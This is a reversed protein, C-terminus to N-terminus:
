EYRLAQVPVLRSAKAAPYLGFILGVAASFGLSLAAISASIQMSVGMLSGILSVGVGSIVLGILGGVLSIALAEIMFQTLINRRKAGIAKRIGIERTRETVSVLMINMIGIGGVLLSIGAIGGLLLSLTDTVSSLTGLIDTQSILNYGDEDRVRALLFNKLVAKATEVSEASTCSVYFSTIWTNRLLRQAPVFPIFITKDNSNFQFGGEEELLGIITFDRGLVNITNGVVNRQGFLEDAIGTGIVAVATRYQDDVAQIARGASLTLNRVTLYDATVGTLTATMSRTASRATGQGSVAPSLLAIGNEPTVLQQLEAATLNINGKNQLTVALMNSGLAELQGTIEGTAGQVVSILMSVALVGIIIGLMTLLSRSKNAGIAKFAMRISQLLNM